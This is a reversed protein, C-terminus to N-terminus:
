NDKRLDQRNKVLVIWCSNMNQYLTINPQYLQVNHSHLKLGSEFKTGSSWYGVSDTVHILHVPELELDTADTLIKQSDCSLGGEGRGLYKKDIEPCIANILKPSTMHFSLLTNRQRNENKESCTLGLQAMWGGGSQRDARGHVARGEGLLSKRAKEREGGLWWGAKGTLGGSSRRGACQQSTVHSDM